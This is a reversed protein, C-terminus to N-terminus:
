RPYNTRLQNSEITNEIRLTEDTSFESVGFHLGINLVEGEFNHAFVSLRIDLDLITALLFFKYTTM